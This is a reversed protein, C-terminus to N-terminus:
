AHGNLDSLHKKCTRAAPNAELRDLEIEEGSVECRGYTGNAIRELAANIESLSKELSHETARREDLDEFKEAIDDRTDLSADEPRAQWEGPAGPKREGIAELETVLRKKEAELKQAFHTTDM